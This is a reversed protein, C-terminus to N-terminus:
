AKYGSFIKTKKDELTVWCIRSRLINMILIREFHAADHTVCMKEEVKKNKIM